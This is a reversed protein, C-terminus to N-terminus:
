FSPSLCCNEHEGYDNPYDKDRTYSMEPVLFLNLGQAGGTGILYVNDGPNDSM